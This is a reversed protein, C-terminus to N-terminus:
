GGSPTKASTSDPLPSSTLQPKKKPRSKLIRSQIPAGYVRSQAGPHPAFSNAKPRVIDGQKNTTPSATASSAVCLTGAVLLALTRSVTARM